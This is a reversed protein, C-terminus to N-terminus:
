VHDRVYKGGKSRVGCRPVCPVARPENASSAPSDNAPIAHGIPLPRDHLM